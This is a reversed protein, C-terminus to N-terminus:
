ILCRDISSSLLVFGEGILASKRDSVVMSELIVSGICCRQTIIADRNLVIDLDFSIV